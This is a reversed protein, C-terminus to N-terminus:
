ENKTIIVKVKDGDEYSELAKVIADRDMEKLYINDIKCVTANFSNMEKVELSNIIDLIAICESNQGEEWEDYHKDRIVPLLRKRIEAKVIDKDIYQPM